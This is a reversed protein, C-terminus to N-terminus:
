KKEMRKHTYYKRVFSDRQEKTKLYKWNTDMSMSISDVYAFPNVPRTYKVETEKSKDKNSDHNANRCSNFTLAFLPISLLTILKKM